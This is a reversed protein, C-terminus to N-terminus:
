PIGRAARWRYSAKNLLTHEVSHISPIRCPRAIYNQYMHISINSVESDFAEDRLRWPEHSIHASDVQSSSEPGSRTHTKQRRRPLYKTHETPSLSHKIEKREPLSRMSMSLAPRSLLACNQMPSYRISSRRALPVMGRSTDSSSHTEAMCYNWRIFILGSFFIYNFM